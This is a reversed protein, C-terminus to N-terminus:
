IYLDPSVAHANNPERRALPRLRHPPHTFAM